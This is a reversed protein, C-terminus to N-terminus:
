VEDSTIEQFLALLEDSPAQGNNRSAFYDRFLEERTRTLDVALQDPQDTGARKMDPILAVLGTHQRFLEKKLSGELFTDSVLTLEVFCDPNEALWQM